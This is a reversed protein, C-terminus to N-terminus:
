CDKEKTKAMLKRIDSQLLFQRSIDIDMTELIEKILTDYYSIQYINSGMLQVANFKSLSQQISEASHKWELQCELIRELVLAVFCMLFHARIRNQSYHFVPRFNLMGTKTVKFTEEIKWLGGYIEVIESAPVKHNLVLFGDHDRYYAWNEPRDKRTENENEVGVVNTCIIYYGDYMEDEALQEHDFEYLCKDHDIKKGDKVATKVLYKNRGYTSDKFDKSKSGTCAMADDIAKQRDKKARDAYKKSWIFIQRENYTGSHKSDDVDGYTSVKRPITREKIRYVLEGNEDRTDTWGESSLAFKRTNEDSKRISQSIVYGNKAERIKLINYYSMMGKDAVVIKRSDSFDIISRDMAEHMTISDNTNGRFLEYTIPLGLEDMFLGLQIVPLPRHEKSVGKARMGDGDDENDIEFFYNTVDYFVVYGRRGFRLRVAKDMAKLIDDRWEILYDMCRYVHQLDYDTDGYFFQRNEWTGLKSDPRLLRSYVLHQFLVNINFEAEVHQRRSNILEDLGLMHYLKSYVCYGLNTNLDLSSFTEGSGLELKKTLDVRFNQIRAVESGKRRLAALHDMIFTEPDLGNEKLVSARFTEFTVRKQKRTGPIRSAQSINYVIDGSKLVIRNMVYAM